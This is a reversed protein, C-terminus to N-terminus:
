REGSEIAGGLALLAAAKGQRGLPSIGTSSWVPTGPTAARYLSQAVWLARGPDTPWGFSRALTRLAPGNTTLHGLWRSLLPPALLLDSKKSNVSADSLVFNEVVSVKAKAWPIVHDFPAGSSPLRVESWFCTGRQLEFLADRMAGTPMLRESGFLHASLDEELGEGLEGVNAHAVLRVFRGLILERLLPGFRILADVAGEQFRIRGAAEGEILYLFPPPDGPLKQLLRLPNKATAAAVASVSARWEMPDIRQRSRDFQASGGALGQLRAVQMILVTQPRNPSLVQRLQAVGRFPVTHSWHIELLREAVTRLSLVPEVPDVEPVLEILALLLGLKNTGTTQGAELIQLIGDVPELRTPTM